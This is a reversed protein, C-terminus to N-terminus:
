PMAASVAPFSVDYRYDINMHGDDFEEHVCPVGHAQLKRVLMRAGFQLNRFLSSM